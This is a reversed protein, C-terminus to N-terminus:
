IGLERSISILDSSSLKSIETVQLKPFAQCQKNSWTELAFLGTFKFALDSICAVVPESIEMGSRKAEADAISITSLRFRDRLVESVSDDEEREMKREKKQNEEERLEVRNRRRIRIGTAEQRRRMEEGAVGGETEEERGRGGSAPVRDGAPGELLRDRLLVRPQLRTKPHHKHLWFAAM